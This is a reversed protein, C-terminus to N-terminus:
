KFLLLLLLLTRVLSLILAAIEDASADPCTSIVWYMIDMPAEYEKSDPNKKQKNLSDIMETAAPVLYNLAKRRYLRVVVSALYGVLPRLIFSPAYQGILLSALGFTNGFNDLTKMFATNHYLKDGVLMRNSVGSIISGIASTLNVEHWPNIKKEDGDDTSTSTSTSTRTNNNDLLPPLLVEDTLARIANFSDKQTRGLNRTLDRRIALTMGDTLDPPIHPILYDIAFKTDIVKRSNLVNDPQTM